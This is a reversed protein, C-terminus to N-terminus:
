SGAYALLKAFIPPEAALIRLVSRRLCPFRDLLLLLNAMLAPRRILRQHEAQYSELDGRHLAESLAIAQHFSLSLGDGTIADVSGSADGVLATHGSFVRRLRRSISVAGREASSEPAGQLRRELEPFDPLANELRLHPDRSLLAVGVSQESVPTVFIQCRPGWHVEVYDTWPSVLFHRRFGYRLSGTSGADLGATNRVHSNLGDAGVIWQYSSIESLHTVPTDWCLRVGIESARAALLQHLRTRRLAIGFGSQFEAELSAGESLFRIGRFPFGDANSVRVGLRRLAEVGPPLV